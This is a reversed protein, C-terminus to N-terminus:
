PFVKVKGWKEGNEGGMFFGGQGEERGRRVPLVPLKGTGRGKGEVLEMM